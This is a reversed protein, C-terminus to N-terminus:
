VFNSSSHEGSIMEAQYWKDLNDFEDRYDRFFVQTNADYDWREFWDVSTQTPLLSADIVFGPELFISSDISEISMVLDYKDTMKSATIPIYNITNGNYKYRIYSPTLEIEYEIFETYLLSNKLYV